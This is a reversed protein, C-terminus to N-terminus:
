GDATGIPIQHDISRTTSDSIGNRVSSLVSKRVLLGAIHIM